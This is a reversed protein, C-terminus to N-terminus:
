PKHCWALSSPSRDVYNAAQPHHQHQDLEPDFLSTMFLFYQPVYHGPVHLLIYPQPPTTTKESNPIYRALYSPSPKVLHKVSHQIDRHIWVM